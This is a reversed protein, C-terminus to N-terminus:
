AKGYGKLEVGFGSLLRALRTEGSALLEAAFIEPSASYPLLSRTSAHRMNILTAIDGGNKQLDRAYSHRLTHPSVLKDWPPTLASRLADIVKRVCQDSIRGGYNRTSHSVLAPYGNISNEATVPRYKTAYVWFASEVLPHLLVPLREGGEGGHGKTVLYILKDQRDIDDLTIFVPESRRAGEFRMVLLLVLNRYFLAGKQSEPNAAFARDGNPITVGWKAYAAKLLREFQEDPLGLVKKPKYPVAHARRFINTRPKGRLAYVLEVLENPAGRYRYWDFKFGYTEKIDEALSYLAVIMLDATRPGRIGRLFTQRQEADPFSQGKLAQTFWGFEEDTVDILSRGRHAAFEVYLRSGRVYVELSADTAGHLERRRKLAVNIPTVPCNNALVKPLGNVEMVEVPLKLPERLTPSPPLNM